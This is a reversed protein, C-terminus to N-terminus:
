LWGAQRYWAATRAVGEEVYVRPAYGLARRAKASSFARSKTWFEVRRRHLPPEVGLPSCIAECAAGLWKVPAAPLHFPLVAGATHRAIMAAFENQTVFRPGALIFDQGVASPHDLAQLFGDVLDDIFVPHYYALGSGVIAYRRRAVARFLKLHRTDGPGYIAAPRVIVVPLDYDGHYRQALLDARAKTTQYIDAPAMPTSEDAPPSDVHGYVGITSTHVFRSVGAHLAERLLRETGVVNVEEYYADAHGATRYVAAVHIVTDARWFLSRIAADDSLSGAVVRAGSASLAETLSQPRVLASVRDGRALLRRLM